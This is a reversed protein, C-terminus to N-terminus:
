DTILEVLDDDNGTDHAETMEANSTQSSQSVRTSILTNQCTQNELVLVCM